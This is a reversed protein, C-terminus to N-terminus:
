RCASMEKLREEVSATIEGYVEKGASGGQQFPAIPVIEGFTIRVRPRNFLSGQVRFLGDIYVPMIDAQNRAAIMAVGYKLPLLKGTKTRTGEPFLLVAENQQLLSEIRRMSSLSFEARDIPICNFFRVVPALLPHEFLEKKAMFFLVRPVRCGVIFPDIASVHNVAFLLRGTRPIRELGRVEVYYRSALVCRILWQSFRFLLRRM